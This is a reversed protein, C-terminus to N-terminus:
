QNARLAARIALYGALIGDEYNFEPSAAIRSHNHPQLLDEPTLDPELRRALELLRRRQAEIMEDLVRELERPTMVLANV